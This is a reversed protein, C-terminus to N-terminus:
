LLLLVPSLPVFAYLHGQQKWYKYDPPAHNSLAKGFNFISDRAMQLLSAPSFRTPLPLPSFDLPSPPRSFLDVQSERKCPELARSSDGSTGLTVM